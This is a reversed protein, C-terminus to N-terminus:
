HVSRKRDRLRVFFEQMLAASENKCIGRQIKVRHNFGHTEPVNLVSGCAGFKPDDAAYVITDIRAILAAGICMTCPELTSFLVCHELRWDGVHNCAASIAIIEAHATADNLGITQNHGRGIIRKDLTIVVGVPVEDQEFAVRAEDLALEMYRHLDDPQM